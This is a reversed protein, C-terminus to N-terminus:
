IGIMQALSSYMQLTTFGVVSATVFKLALASWASIQLVHILGELWVGRFAIGLLCFVVIPVCKKNLDHRSFLWLLTATTIHQVLLINAELCKQTYM